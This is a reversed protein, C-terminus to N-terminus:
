MMKKTDAQELLDDYKDTNKVEQILIVQDIAVAVSAQNPGDGLYYYKSDYDLLYGMVALPAEQQIHGEEASLTEKVKSKTYVKIFEGAFTQFFRNDEQIKRKRKLM